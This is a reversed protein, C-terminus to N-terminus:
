AVPSAVPSAVAVAAKRRPLHDSGLGQGAAGRQLEQIELQIKRARKAIQASLASARRVLKAVDLVVAAAVGKDETVTAQEGPGAFVM